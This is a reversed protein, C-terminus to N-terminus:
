VLPTCLAFSYVLVAKVGLLVEAGRIEELGNQASLSRYREHRRRVRIIAPKHETPTSRWTLYVEARLLITGGSIGCINCQGGALRTRSSVLITRAQPCVRALQTPKDKSKGCAACTLDSVISRSRGGRRPRVHSEFCGKWAWWQRLSPNLVRAM